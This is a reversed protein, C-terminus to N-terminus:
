RAKGANMIRKAGKDELEDALMELLMRQNSSLYKPMSVKFEVRLDGLANRRGGIKPMGMGSLTVKDGTGTGTAVKLKVEGDLTPVKIEGGLSATTLPISATYLVDAGSRSFKTDAAVRIHVYLDGNSIRAGPVTATGTAPADGEGSVKLTMGDEIGGPIDINVTKRERVAGRGDCSGCGGGRPIAMGSGSCADCTSAMQFGAQAYHIRTGTGGCKKCSSRELGKKLGRGSCTKCQVLPTIYIAKSTGKAADMFSINTQVEISQGTLTEEPFPSQRSGRGRRGGGTFAGFLDEFNMDSGFGGASFGQFGGASAAGGFPGAAGAGGGSSDFGAGQDFAAAGYQDWVAKKKPDSLMEYATQSESFRDKAGSDKNTDPHYKKALAYYAKKIDALSASKGVGLVSYPDKTAHKM